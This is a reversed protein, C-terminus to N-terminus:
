AKVKKQIKLVLNTLTTILTKLSAVTTALATVAALAAAANDTVTASATVAVQGSAPFLAGGTATITVKGGTAPMYVTFLKIAELSAFGDVAATTGATAYTVATTTDSGNGMTVNSTIGGTAFINTQTGGGIAKGAVDLPKVIIYAKEGPAYTAKDFALTFRAPAATNVTLAIATSAVTALATTSGNRLTISASGNNTGGLSCLFGGVTAVYAGCSTGAPATGTNIVTLDSSYAYVANTTQVVNGAADKPVALIVNAATAGVTTQLATGTITAVTTGYFTIAKNAFTVSTTKVTIVATGSTGDSYINLDDIGDTDAQLVVSKGATAASTGINGVTTTVTISERAPLGAATKQTVRIVGRVTSDTTVPASVSTSDITNGAVFAAGGYFVASSTGAATTSGAAALASNSVVINFTGSKTLTTGLVGASYGRVVYDIGYTGAVRVLATDLHVGMKANLNGSVNTTFEVIAPNSLATVSEIGIAAATQTYATATAGRGRVQVIGGSATASDRFSVLLSDTAGAATAPKTGLTLTITLTDTNGEVFSRVSITAAGTSDSTGLTATGNETTVDIASSVIAANSPTSSLLSLGLAAVAVLSIRKFNTTTSMYKRENTTVLFKRTAAELHTARASADREWQSIRIATSVQKNLIM